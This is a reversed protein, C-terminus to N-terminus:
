GPVEAHLRRHERHEEEFRAFLEAESVAGETKGFLKESVFALLITTLEYRDLRTAEIARDLARRWSHRRIETMVLGHVAYLEHDADSRRLTQFAAAADDFRGLQLYLWAADCLALAEEPQLELIERVTELAQQPRNASVYMDALNRLITLDGPVARRAQVLAGIADEVRGLALLVNGLDVLVPADGPRLRLVAQLAEAAEAPKGASLLAV